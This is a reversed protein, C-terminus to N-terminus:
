PCGFAPIYDTLFPLVHKARFKPPQGVAQPSQHYLLWEIM